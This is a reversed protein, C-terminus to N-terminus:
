EPTGVQCTLNLNAGDKLEQMGGFVDKPRSSAQMTLFLAMFGKGDAGTWFPKCVVQQEPVGTSSLLYIAQPNQIDSLEMTTDLPITFTENGCGTSSDWSAELAVTVSASSHSAPTPAALALSLLTALTSLISFM